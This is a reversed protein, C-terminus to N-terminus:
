PLNRFSHYLDAVRYSSSCGANCGMDHRQRITLLIINVIPSSVYGDALISSSMLAFFVMRKKWPSWNRPDNKDVDERGPTEGALAQKADYGNHERSTPVADSRDTGIRKESAVPKEM